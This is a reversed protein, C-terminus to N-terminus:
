DWNTTLKGRAINLDGSPRAYLKAMPIKESSLQSSM